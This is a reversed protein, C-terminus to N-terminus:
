SARQLRAVCPMPQVLGQPVLRSYRWLMEPNVCLEARERDTPKWPQASGAGSAADIVVGSLKQWIGVDFRENGELTNLNVADYLQRAQSARGDLALIEAQRLRAKILAPTGEGNFKLYLAIANDISKLAALKDGRILDLEAQIAARRANTSSAGKAMMAQDAEALLPEIEELPKGMSLDLMALNMLATDTNTVMGVQQQRQKQNELMWSRATAFDGELRFMLALQHELYGPPATEGRETRTKLLVMKAYAIDAPAKSILALQSASAAHMANYADLRKEHEV